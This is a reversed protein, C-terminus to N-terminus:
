EEVYGKSVLYEIILECSEDVDLEDTNIIVEASQPAEYAQSIGTFNKIEGCRAKKYLGKVDRQECIEIPTDVFIEIFEDADVMERIMRRESKFPSIFATLVILGSDVFLKAM